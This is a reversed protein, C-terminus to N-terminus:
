NGILAEHESSKGVDRERERLGWYSPEHVGPSKNM